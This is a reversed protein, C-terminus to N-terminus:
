KTFDTRIEGSELKDIKINFKNLVDQVVKRYWNNESIMPNLFISEIFNNLDGTKLKIGYKLNDDEKDLLLTIRFEEEYKYAKNKLLLDRFTIWKERSLKRDIISGMEINSNDVYIVDSFLINANLDSLLKKNLSEINKLNEKKIKIAIGETSLGYLKWMAMSHSDNSFWSSVYSRKKLEEIEKIYQINYQEEKEETM